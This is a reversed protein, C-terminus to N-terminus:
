CRCKTFWFTVVISDVYAKVKGWNPKNKLM